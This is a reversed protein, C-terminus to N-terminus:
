KRDLTELMCLVAQIVKFISDVSVKDATDKETHWYSNDPGYSFDIIDLSPIGAQLFPVHDDVMYTAQGRVIEGNGLAKCCSAFLLWLDQSSNFDRNVALDKDGMMDLLIMARVDSIRGEARLNFVHYKSGYLGDKETMGEEISEEGDFFIFRYTKETKQGSIIRALELLAATSSGSDNAGPIEIGEIRKTDIHSGLSVIGKGRGKHEAVVNSMSLPGRPTGATFSEEWVDLSFAKLTNELYVRCKELMESGAPRPSFRMLENFFNEIRKKSPAMRAASIQATSVAGEPAPLVDESRSNETRCSALGAGGSTLTGCLLLTLVLRRM